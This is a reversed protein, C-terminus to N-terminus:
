WDTLIDIPLLYQFVWFKQLRCIPRDPFHLMKLCSTGLRESLEKLNWIPRLEALSQLKEFREQRKEIRPACLKVIEGISIFPHNWYQSMEILGKLYKANVQLNLIDLTTM